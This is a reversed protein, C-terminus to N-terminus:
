FNYNLAMIIRNQQFSQDERDANTEYFRYGISMATRRSLAFSVDFSFSQQTYDGDILNSDAIGYHYGFGLRFRSTLQHTLYLDVGYQQLNQRDRGNFQPSTDNTGGSEKANEYYGSIALRSGKWAIIGLGYSVYDASVYNSTTNLASEHGFNIAHSVRSTLRNSITVNYYYSTM